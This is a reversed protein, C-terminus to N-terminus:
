GNVVQPARKKQVENMHAVFAKVTPLFEKAAERLAAEEEISVELVCGREILENMAATIRTMRKAVNGVLESATPPVTPADAVAEEAPADAVVKPKNKSGAPRGGKKKGTVKRVEDETEAASMGKVKPLLEDQQVTTLKVLFDVQKQKLEGAEYSAMVADSAGEVRKISQQVARESMGTKEVTDQTFSKTEGIATADGSAAAADVAKKKAMGRKKSAPRLKEYIQKRLAIAKDLDAGELASRELNEDINILREETDPADCNRMEVPILDVGALKAAALRRHGAILEMKGNVILPQLVGSQKISEVLSTLDGEDTRLNWNERVLIKEPKVAKMVM